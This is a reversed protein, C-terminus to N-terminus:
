VETPSIVTEGHSAGDHSGDVLDLFDFENIERWQLYVMVAAAIIILAFLFWLWRWRSRRQVEPATRRLPPAPPPPESRIRRGVSSDELSLDPPTSNTLPAAEPTAAPDPPASANQTLTSSSPSAESDQRAREPSAPVVRYPTVRSGSNPSSDAESTGRVAFSSHFLRREGLDAEEIGRLAAGWDGAELRGMLEDLYIRTPEDMQPAGGSKLDELSRRFSGDEVRRAVLSYDEAHQYCFTALSLTRRVSVPVLELLQAMTEEVAPSDGAAPLQLRGTALLHGLLVRLLPYREPFINSIDVELAPESVTRLEPFATDPTWADLMQFQRELHFPNFGLLQYDEDPVRVIHRLMAGQRGGADRGQYSILVVLHHSPGAPPSSSEWLPMQILARKFDAGPEYVGWRNCIGEYRELEGAGLGDTCLHTHHGPRVGEQALSAYIQQEIRAM